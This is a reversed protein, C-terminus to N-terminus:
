KNDKCWTFFMKINGLYIDETMFIDLVDLLENKNKNLIRAM